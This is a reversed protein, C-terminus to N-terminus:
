RRTQDARQQERQDLWAELRAVAEAYGPHTEALTTDDADAESYLIAAVIVQLDELRPLQDRAARIPAPPVTRDLEDILEDLPDRWLTM